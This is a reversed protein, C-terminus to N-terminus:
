ENERRVTICIADNTLIAVPGADRNFANIGFAREFAQSMGTVGIRGIARWIISALRNLPEIRWAVKEVKPRQCERKGIAAVREIGSALREANLAFAVPV